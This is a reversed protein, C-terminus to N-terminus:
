GKGEGLKAQKEKKVRTKRTKRFSKGRELTERGLRFNFLFCNSFTCEKWSKIDGACCMEKCYLRIAQKRTLKRRSFKQRIREMDSNYM